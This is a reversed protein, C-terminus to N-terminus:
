KLKNALLIGVQKYKASTFTHLQQQNKQHGNQIGVSTPRATNNGNPMPKMELICNILADDSQKIGMPASTTRSYIPQQHQQSPLQQRQKMDITPTQIIQLHEKLQERQLKAILQQQRLYEIRVQDSRMDKFPRMMTNIYPNTVTATHPPPPAISQQQQQQKPHQQQNILDDNLVRNPNIVPQKKIVTQNQQSM